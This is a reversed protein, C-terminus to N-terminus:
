RRFPTLALGKLTQYREGDMEDVGFEIGGYDVRERYSGFLRDWWSFVTAYNSDTERRIRSHHLKHMNPSVILWRVGRDLSDRLGINAHHFETAIVVAASYIAVISLSLGLLPILLLRLAASIVLEGTHFRLATSVDVDRDSHHVRHFRWLLPLRHNARHWGYTWLDLLLFGSVAAVWPSLEYRQLAGWGNAATWESVAVTAGACCLAVVVGNVAALSLNRAAHLRRNRQAFFPAISEWAFFVALGAAAAFFRWGASDIEGM